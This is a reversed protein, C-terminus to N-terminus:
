RGTAVEVGGLFTAPYAFFSAIEVPAAFSSVDFVRVNPGGGAGPATIIRLTGPAVVGALHSQFGSFVVSDDNAAVLNACPAAPNFSGQYLAVFSDVLTGLIVRIDTEGALLVTYTDYRVATGSTSLTCTLRSSGAIPRNFTPDAVSLDGNFIVTASAPSPMRTLAVLAFLVALLGAYPRRM